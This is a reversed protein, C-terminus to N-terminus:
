DIKAQAVASDAADRITAITRKGKIASGILSTVTSPVQLAHQGLTANITAYHQRVAEVGAAVIEAKRSEKEKTVLKDLELRIRRTEASVSDITRFLDDISATQSLAHDKAASLREEVGKCWKVTQEADAFDEDTQLDRNIAGLVTMAHEKFERLNSATVMGTVEIHLAPLQDPARGIAAPSDALEPQYAAVDADFQAWGALLKPIDAEVHSRFIELRDSGDATGDGCLYLCTEATECVAFQQVIQWYDAPPIEGRQMCELKGANSQKAEFIIREDLTVGDFSAGLRGDDAVGTVPFLDEGIIKEAIARLLPEVKHGDDFRKQTISDVEPEVGTAVRRILEARTVYPSVGMMAAADSANRTTRRHALWEATGQILTLTKMSR